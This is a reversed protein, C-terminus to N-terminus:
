KGTHYICADSVIRKYPYNEDNDLKPCSCKPLMYDKHYMSDPKFGWLKQLAFQAERWSQYLSVLVDIDDEYEMSEVLIDVVKHLKNINGIAKDSLGRAEALRMNIAM